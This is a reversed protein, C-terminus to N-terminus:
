ITERSLDFATESLWESIKLCITSVIGSLTPLQHFVIRKYFSYKDSFQDLACSSHLKWLRASFKGVFPWFFDSLTGFLYSFFIKRFFQWFTGMSLYLATKVIVGRKNQCLTLFTESMTTFPLVVFFIKWSFLKENLQKQPGISHLQWLGGFFIQVFDLFEERLTRSYYSILFYLISKECFRQFNKLFLSFFREIDSLSSFTKTKGFFTHWFTRTSLYFATKVVVKFKEQCNAM